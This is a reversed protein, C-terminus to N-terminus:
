LTDLVILAICYWSYSSQGSQMNDNENSMFLLLSLSGKISILVKNMLGRNDFFLSFLIGCVRISIFILVLKISKLLNYLSIMSTPILSQYYQFLTNPPWVKSQSTLYTQKSTKTYYKVM